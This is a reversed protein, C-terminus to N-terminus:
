DASSGIVGGIIGGWIGGILVGVICGGIDGWSIRLDPDGGQSSATRTSNAAVGVIVLAAASASADDLISHYIAEVQRAIEAVNGRGSRGVLSIIKLIQDAEPLSLAGTTQLHRLIKESTEIESGPVQLAKLRRLLSGHLEGAASALLGENASPSPMSLRVFDVMYSRRDPNQGFPRYTLPDTPVVAIDALIPISEWLPPGDRHPLVFHYSPNGLCEKTTVQLTPWCHAEIDGWM